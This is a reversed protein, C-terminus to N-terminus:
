GLPVLGYMTGHDTLSLFSAGYTRAREYYARVTLVSDMPSGLDSHVHFFSRAYPVGAWSDDELFARYQDPTLEDLHQQMAIRYDEDTQMRQIVKKNDM